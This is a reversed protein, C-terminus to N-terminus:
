NLYCQITCSLRGFSEEFLSSLDSSARKALTSSHVTNLYLSSNFSCKQSTGPFFGQSLKSELLSFPHLCTTKQTSELGNWCPYHDQTNDYYSYYTLQGVHKFIWLALSVFYKRKLYGGQDYKVVGWYMALFSQQKRASHGKYQKCVVFYESVQAVANDETVVVM